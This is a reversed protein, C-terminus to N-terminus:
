ELLPNEQKLDALYHQIHEMHILSLRLDQEMEGYIRSHGLSGLILFDLSVRFYSATCAMLEISPRKQGIEMNSLHQTSINLEMALQVQTLHQAKRLTRLRRGFGTM